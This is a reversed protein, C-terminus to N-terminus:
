KNKKKKKKNITRTFEPVTSFIMDDGKKFRIKKGDENQLLDFTIEEKNYLKQYLELPTLKNMKAYGLISGTPVGKLRIHHGRKTEGTKEDKGVLCDIYCKKGLAIFKESYVDQCGELEFDTHFQGMGKGILERKFKENFAKQLKPVDNVFMHMSDTDQYYIPFQNDEATTMVENMIRKSMSLIQIGIHVRNSHDNIANTSTIRYGNGNECKVAKKIWNYNRSVYKEFEDNSIYDYKENIEKLCTKGYSSNMILKYIEQMPNGKTGDEQIENKKEIRAEFVEQIVDKIKPNFGNNFFYGDIIEFKIGQFKVADELAVNDIFVTKGKMDNSFNRVGTKEDIFSLLPFARRISVETIKVRIYFGSVKKLNEYNKMKGEVLEPSGLLFGDLRKMASPYLSVADFDSIQTDKKIQKQPENNSCMTRGGVLCKQVFARTIGNLKVCGDYCGRSILFDDAVSANSIYNDVDLGCVSNIMSGFKKYGKMLVECDAMCYIASYKVIDIKHEHIVGWKNCNELFQKQESDKLSEMCEIVDVLPRKEKMREETYIDYPMVEKQQDLKFMKGFKSLPATILAYSDQMKLPLGYFSGTAMMVRSGKEITSKVQVYEAIGVIFDYTLNHAFMTISPPAKKSKKTQKVYYKKHLDNLMHKGCDVGYFTKKNKNDDVYCCLYPVHKKGNTSTEFDFWVRVTSEQFHKKKDINDKRKEHDVAPEYETELFLKPFTDVNQHYPTTMLETSMEIPKLFKEKNENMLYKFLALTDMCRKPNTENQKVYHNWPKSLKRSKLLDYNNLAYKTIQTKEIFFYHQGILGINIQPLEENGYRRANHTNTLGRVNIHLDFQECINKIKCMPLYSNKVQCKIAEIIEEKVMKSCQLAQIFCCVNYNSSIVSSFLGYKEVDPLDHKLTYTFFAGQSKKSENIRKLKFSKAFKIYHVLEGDSGAKNLKGKSWETTLITFFNELTKPNLTYFFEKDEQTKVTLLYPVNLPIKELLKKLNEAGQTTDAELDRLYFTKENGVKGSVHIIKETEAQDQFKVLKARPKSPNNKTGRTYLKSRDVIRQSKPNFALGRGKLLDFGQFFGENEKVYKKFRATLNFTKPNYAIGNYSTKILIEDNYSLYPSSTKKPQSSM